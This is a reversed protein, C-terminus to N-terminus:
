MSLCYRFLLYFVTLSDNTYPSRSQLFDRIYNVGAFYPHVRIRRITKPDCVGHKISAPQAVRTYMFEFHTVLSKSIVQEVNLAITFFAFMIGIRIDRQLM